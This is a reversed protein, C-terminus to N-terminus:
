FSGLKSVSALKNWQKESLRLARGGLTLVARSGDPHPAAEYALLWGNKGGLHARKRGSFIPNWAFPQNTGPQTFIAANEAFEDLNQRAQFASDLPPLVNLNAGGM